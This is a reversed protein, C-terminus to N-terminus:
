TLLTLINWRGVSMRSAGINLGICGTISSEPTSGIVPAVSILLRATCGQSVGIFDM